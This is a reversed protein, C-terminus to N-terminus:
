KHPEFVDWPIKAMLFEGGDECNMPDAFVLDSPFKWAAMAAIFGTV